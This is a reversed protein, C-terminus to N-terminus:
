KEGPSVIVPRHRPWEARFDGLSYWLYRWTLDIEAFAITGWETAQAVVQGAPDYIGTIMWHDDPESYTSSVLWVHNECARAAALLPNCGWVPWAIIEAGNLALERAVEPFFGDYCVMMGVRGFRTTFVPAFHGPEVGAEIETRPLAVKRYKGEVSGNPGILVATNYILAGDREVLGAVIYLRNSRALEGFYQTSPGPIPEACEALTLGTRYFTLTEPLVVLDAKRRAAEEILPKFQPPKETPTRGATPRFHVAAIRVRRPAPENTSCLTAQAWWVRGGPAWRLHLELVARVANSPVYYHGAVTRWGAPASPEVQEAPYEPEAMVPVLTRPTRYPPDLQVPRSGRGLWRVRMVVSRLTNTIHEARFRASVHYWRGGEVEQVSEWWGSQGDRGDAVLGWAPGGDPGIRPDFEFRPAIEARPARTQWGFREEGLRVEESRVTWCLIGGQLCAFVWSRLNM